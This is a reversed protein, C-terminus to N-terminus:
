GRTPGASNRRGTIIRTSGGTSISPCIRSARACVWTPWAAWRCGCMTACRIRPSASRPWGRLARTSKRHSNWATATTTTRSRRRRRMSRGALRLRPQAAASVELKDGPVNWYIEYTSIFDLCWSKVWREWGPNTREGPDNALRPALPEVVHFVRWNRWTWIAFPALALLVCVAAM